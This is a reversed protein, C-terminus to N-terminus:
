SRSIWVVSYLFAAFEALMAALCFWALVKLTPDAHHQPQGEALWLLSYAYFTGAEAVLFAFAAVAIMVPRKSPNSM